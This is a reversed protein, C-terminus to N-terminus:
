LSFQLYKETVKQLPNLYSEGFLLLHNLLHYINYIDKRIQYSKFDISSNEKYKDYFIQPLKSFLETMALDCELDGYYIAPDILIPTDIKSFFFNGNWLDGHLLSVKKPEELYNELHDFLFELGKLLEHNNRFCGEKASLHLLTVM